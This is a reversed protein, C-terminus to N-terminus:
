AMESGYQEININIKSVLKEMSPDIKCVATFLPLVFTELDSILFLLTSVQSALKDESLAKTIKGHRMGFNSCGKPLHHATKNIEDAWTIQATM